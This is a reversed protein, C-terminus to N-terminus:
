PQRTRIAAVGRLISDVQSNGPGAAPAPEDKWCEGNLWTAPHKTYQAPKGTQEAAYRMAGALLDAETADGKTVIRRYAKEADGRAVHRPYVRYWEDFNGIAPKTSRRRRPKEESRDGLLDCDHCDSERAFAREITEEITGEITRDITRDSMATDPRDTTLHGTQTDDSTRDSTTLHGTKRTASRASTDPRSGELGPAAARDKFIPRHVNPRHWGRNVIKVHGRAVLRKLTRRVTRVDVALLNALTEQTPWADGSRTNVFGALMIALRATEPPLERDTAIQQLWLFLGRLYGRKDATVTM